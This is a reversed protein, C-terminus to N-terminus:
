KRFCDRCYVPKSGNPKFPVQTEAGCASCVTDYMQRPAGFGGSPRSSGFGSPGGRAQKAQARCTKCRKPPNAFGKEQYFEQESVTFPFQAGCDVCTIVQETFQPM